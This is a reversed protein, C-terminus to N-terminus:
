FPTGQGSITEDLPYHHPDPARLSNRGGFPRIADRRPGRVSPIRRDPLTPRLISNVKFPDIGASRSFPPPFGLGFRRENLVRLDIGLDLRTPIMSM